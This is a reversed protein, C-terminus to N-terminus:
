LVEEVVSGDRVIVRRKAFRACEESHTVLVVTTGRQNIEELIEMVSEAMSPDLNGTPEDAFIISPEAVMARAVAARQQQGGSLMNPMHDRRGQLGFEELADQVRRERELLPLGRIRLPLEINREVTLEPLLNFGQFVFGILENRLKALQSETLAGVDTGALEYHGDDMSDLLGAINLFTTKGAGSVGEISVFEGSLISISFNRLAFTSVNGVEYKKVINKMELLKNGRLVNLNDISFRFPKPM